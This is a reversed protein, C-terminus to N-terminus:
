HSSNLRTSKRDQRAERFREAVALVVGGWMREFDERPVAVNGRVPDGLLIRGGAAGKVVVFHRYGDLNILTIVPVGEEIVGDLPIRFGGAKFGQSELYNKMLDSSCVDSSWDSIRMEYATKQKFCVFCLM